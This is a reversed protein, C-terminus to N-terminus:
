TNLLPAPLTTNIYVPKLTPTSYEPFIQFRFPAKWQTDFYNYSGKPSGLMLTISNTDPLTGGYVEM